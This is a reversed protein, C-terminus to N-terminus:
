RRWRIDNTNNDTGHQDRACGPETFILRDAADWIHDSTSTYGRLWLEGNIRRLYFGKPFTDDDVVPMSVVTVSGPPARHETIPFGIFGEPQDTFQLRLHPALEIPAPHLGISAAAGCISGMTAGDPFGLDRVALEVIHLAHRQGACCFHESHMLTMAADNLRVGSLALDQLLRSPASGGVHVLRRTPGTKFNNHSDSM